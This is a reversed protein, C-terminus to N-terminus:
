MQITIYESRFSPIIKMLGQHIHGASELRGDEPNITAKRSLIAHFGMTMDDSFVKRVDTLDLVAGNKEPIIRILRHFVIQRIADMDDPFLVLGNTNAGRLLFDAWADVIGDNKGPDPHLINAWHLALVPHTFSFSPEAAVHDWNVPSLGREIVAVGCEATVM